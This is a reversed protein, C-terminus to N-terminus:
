VGNIKFQNEYYSYLPSTLFQLDFFKKIGMRYIFDKSLNKLGHRNKLYHIILQCCYDSLFHGFCFKLTNISQKNGYLAAKRKTIGKDIIRQEITENKIFPLDIPNCEVCFMYGTKRPFFSLDDKFLYADAYVATRIDKLFEKFNKEIDHNVIEVASLEEIVAKIVNENWIDNEWSYGNTYLINQHKLRKNLVEDFENDMAVMVTTLKGNIIDLAIEKVTSKSGISKFKIKKQSNFIKFINNWFIIDETESSYKGSYVQEKNFSISGGELFVILDVGYFKHQNNLGSSTRRFSSM